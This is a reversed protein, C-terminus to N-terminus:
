VRKLKILHWYEEVYGLREYWLSRFTHFPIGWKDECTFGLRDDFRGDENNKTFLFEPKCEVGDITKFTVKDLPNRGYFSREIANAPCLLLDAFKAQIKYVM